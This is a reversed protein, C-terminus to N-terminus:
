VVTVLNLESTRYTYGTRCNVECSLEGERVGAEAITDGETPHRRVGNAGRALPSCGAADRPPWERGDRGM